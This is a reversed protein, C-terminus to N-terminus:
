AQWVPFTQELAHAVQLLLNASRDGPSSGRDPLGAETFGAPVSIAPYGILDFLGSFRIPPGDTARSARRSSPRACRAPLCRVSGGPAASSRGARLPHSLGPHNRRRVQQARTSRRPPPHGVGPRIRTNPAYEDARDRLWPAGALSAEPYLICRRGRWSPTRCRWWTPLHLRSGRGSQRRM